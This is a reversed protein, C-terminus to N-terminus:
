FWVKAVRQTTFPSADTKQDQCEVTWSPQSSKPPRCDAPTVSADGSQCDYPGLGGWAASVFVCVQGGPLQMAWPRATTLPPGTVSTATFEVVNGTAPDLPCVLRATTGHPGAFCPDYVGAGAGAGFCRYSRRADGAICSGTVRATVRLSPDVTGTASFPQYTIERTGGALVTTPSSTTSPTTPAPATTSTPAVATTTSPPGGVHLRPTATPSSGVALIAVAAAVVLAGSVAVVRLRRVKARRARMARLAREVREPEPTPYGTAGSTRTM